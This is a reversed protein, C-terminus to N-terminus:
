LLTNKSCITGKKLYELIQPRYGITMKLIKSWNLCKKVSVITNKQSNKRKKKRESKTAKKTLNYNKKASIKYHSQHIKLM